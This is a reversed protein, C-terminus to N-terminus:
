LFPNLVGSKKRQFSSKLTPFSEYPSLAGDKEKDPM